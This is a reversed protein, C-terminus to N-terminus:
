AALCHAGTIKQPFMAEGGKTFRAIVSGGNEHTILNQERMLDKEDDTLGNYFIAIESLLVGQETANKKVAEIDFQAENNENTERM